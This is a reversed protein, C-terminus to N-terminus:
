QPAGALIWNLFLDYKARVPQGPLARTDFGLVTAGAHHNGSPKRLLPSDDIDTFNIRSRVEAYFWADDIADVVGDGNRDENAFHVPPLPPNGTASHCTTCLDAGQMTAKIDAFRIASPAPSLGNDVVLMVLKPEGQATARSAVLSLVYTGDQTATFTPQATGADTLTAGTAPTTGNPGSVISWAYASAFLSGTASLRTAGQRIVRDPGPEAVPRGPRLVAGTADRAVLGQDHLFTALTQAASSAFFRDAVIKALPMNGRDIM